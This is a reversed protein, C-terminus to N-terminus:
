AHSPAGGRRSSVSAHHIRRPRQPYTSPSSNEIQPPLCLLLVHSQVRLANRPRPSNKAASIMGFPAGFALYNVGAIRIDEDQDQDQKSRKRPPEDEKEGAGAGSAGECGEDDYEGNEDSTESEYDDWDEGSSSRTASTAEEFFDVDLESAGDLPQVRVPSWPNPYDHKLFYVDAEPAVLYRITISTYRRQELQRPQVEPYSAQPRTGKPNLTPQLQPHSSIESHLARQLPQPTPARTAFEEQPLPATSLLPAPLPLPIAVDRSLSVPKADEVPYQSAVEKAQSIPIADAEEAKTPEVM